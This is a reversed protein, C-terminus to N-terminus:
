TMVQSPSLKVCTQELKLGTQVFINHWICKTFVGFEEMYLITMLLCVFASDFTSWIESTHTQNVRAAWVAPVHIEGWQLASHLDLLQLWCVSDLMPVDERIWGRVGFLHDFSCFQCKWSKFTGKLYHFTIFWYKFLDYKFVHCMWLLYRSCFLIM